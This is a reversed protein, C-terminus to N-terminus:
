RTRALRFGLYYYRDEPDNRYRNASRCARASCNWSGGRIVRVRGSEVYIPNEHAHKSYADKAYIDSCWEWVNGSMDYIGLGNFAQTGVEHTRGGSNGDYWALRDVDEGGCYTEGRGGSRCAYEWEAETPLRYAHGTKKSLWEAFATAEKWSVCCVPHDAEQTFGEPDAMGDCRWHNSGEGRYGTESVFREWQGVTVEHVGMWFGDVCVEHVPKEDDDGENSGMQFCGGPVWVFEMGLSNTFGSPVEGGGTSGTETPRTQKSLFWGGIGVAAVLLVLSVWILPRRQTRPRAPTPSSGPGSRDSPPGSSPISVPAPLAEDPLLEPEILEQPEESLDPSAPGRELAKRVGEVAEFMAEASAYREEPNARVASRVLDDWAPILSPDIQSPLEFGPEEHGTLLRFAMLGVAYVDSRADAKEGRKQEPAMYAYTGLFSRTSTGPGGTEKVTGAAGMTLSVSEQARSLVWEEGVLRVLGFDSIKVRVEELSDGELLINAPKLDRHVVGRGHAYSLGELVQGLIRAVLGQGLRGKRAAALDALSVYRRGEHAVGSVRELRMWYRGDTEGFDDVRVVSPHDLHGMVQAERKFRELFGSRSSLDPPILKLAFTRRLVQHEVEFVEGMGGRGLFRVIRYQGFAAGPKLSGTSSPDGESMPEGHISERNGAYPPM